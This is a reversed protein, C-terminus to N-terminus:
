EFENVKTWEEAIWYNTELSEDSCMVIDIQCRKLALPRTNSDCDSDLMGIIYSTDDLENPRQITCVVSRKM